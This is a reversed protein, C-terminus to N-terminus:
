KYFKELRKGLKIIDNINETISAVLSKKIRFIQVGQSKKGCVVDIYGRQKNVDVVTGTLVVIDGTKM